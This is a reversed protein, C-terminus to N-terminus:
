AEVRKRLRVKLCQLDEEVGFPALYLPYQDAKSFPVAQVLLLFKRRLLYDTRAPDELHFKAKAALVAQLLRATQLLRM